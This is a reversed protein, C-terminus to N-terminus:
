LLFSGETSRLGSVGVLFNSSSSLSVVLLVIMSLSSLSWKPARGRGGLFPKYEVLFSLSPCSLYRIRRSPCETWGVVQTPTVVSYSISM